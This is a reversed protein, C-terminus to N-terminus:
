IAAAAQEEDLWAHADDREALAFTRIKTPLLVASAQAMPSIWSVDTVVAVHSVHQINRLDFQLGPLLVAPDFGSFSEVVEVLHITGHTDIFDQLPGTVADFDEKSLHGSVTFEVRKKDPFEEYTVPM